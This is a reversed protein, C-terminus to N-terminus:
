RFDVPERSREPMEHRGNSSGSLKKKPRGGSSERIAAMVDERVDAKAESVLRPLDKELEDNVQRIAQAKVKDGKIAGFIQLYVKPDALGYIIWMALTASWWFVIVALSTVGTVEAVTWGNFLITTDSLLVNGGIAAEVAFIILVGLLAFLSMLIAIIRQGAGGHGYRVQALWYLLGGEFLALCAVQIVVSQPFISQLFQLTVAASGTFLLVGFLSKFLGGVFEKFSVKGDKNPDFLDNWMTQLM